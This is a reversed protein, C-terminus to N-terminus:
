SRRIIRLPSLLGLTTRPILSLTVIHPWARALEAVLQDDLEFAAFSSISLSELNRFSALHRLSHATIQFEQVGAVPLDDHDPGSHLRLRTLCAHSSSNRLAGFLKEMEATRPCVSFVIDIADLSLNTCIHFFKIVLEVDVVELTLTNLRPFIISPIPNQSLLEPPLSHLRMSTVSPLQGLHELAKMSPVGM